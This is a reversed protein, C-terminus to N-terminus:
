GYFKGCATYEANAVKSGGGCDEPFSGSDGMYSVVPQTNLMPWKAAEAVTRPVPVQIARTQNSPKVPARSALM